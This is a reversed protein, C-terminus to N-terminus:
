RLGGDLVREPVELVPAFGGGRTRFNTTQGRYLRASLLQLQGRYTYARLDLKLEAHQGDVQVRRRSPEVSRQAVYGGQLIQEFMKRTLKSGAYAARSGYGGAPKFFLDRRQAWLADAETAKVEWTRPVHAQLLAIDQAAAGFATLQSPDSLRALNRKDAYLAHAQPHPTIVAADNYWAQRLAAHGPQEFPFDTLRNYVLDIALEGAWLRGQRWDLAAADVVVAQWGASAFLRKFLRFEPELYQGSPDDDVIAVSRLPAEGRALRWEQAFMDLWTRELTQCDPSAAQMRGVPECCAFQADLLLANIYAGGANTNIEILQPGEPSLHFDYGFFVGAQAVAHQASPAAGQLAAHRYGPLSVVREVAEIVARLSRVSAADVFVSVPALLHPRADLLAQELGRLPPSRRLAARLRATDLSSCSCDHNIAQALASM